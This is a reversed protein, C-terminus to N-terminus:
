MYAQLMGMLGHSDHFENYNLSWDVNLHNKYFIVDFKAQPKAYMVRIIPNGIQKKMTKSFKATGNETFTIQKITAANLSGEGVITVAQLTLSLLM